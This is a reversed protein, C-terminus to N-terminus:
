LSTHEELWYMRDITDITQTQKEVTYYLKTSM